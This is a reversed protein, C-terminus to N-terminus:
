PLEEKHKSCIIKPMPCPAHPMPCKANPGTFQLVPSRYVPSGPSRSVPPCPAPSRSVPPCPSLSYHIIPKRLEESKVKSEEWAWHGIGLAGM